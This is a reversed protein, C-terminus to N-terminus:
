VLTIGQEKLPQNHLDHYAILFFVSFIVLSEALFDLCIFIKKPFLFM